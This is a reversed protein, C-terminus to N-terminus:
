RVAGSCVAAVKIVTMGAVAGAIAIGAVAKSVVMTVVAWLM